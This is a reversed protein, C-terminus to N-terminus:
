RSGREHTLMELVVRMGLNNVNQIEIGPRANIELLYPSERGIAIDIGIYKLPVSDAVTISMQRIKDWYPLRVGLLPEGSDPHHTIPTGKLSAHFTEGTHWDVAVGIAGQHLNATGNSDSTAIRIMCMVAQNLHLIVRVDALGYPSLKEVDQHQLIRQEVIAQDNLSFSYVGFLIDAIHKRIDQITILKGSMTLWGEPDRQKIVLIGGGGSGSAPKIVFDNYKALQTELDRLQFFYSFEAFTKAMPIESRQAFFSKLKLKNDALPFHKRNNHRYVYHLNRRNIFLINSINKRWKLLTQWKGRLNQWNQRFLHM